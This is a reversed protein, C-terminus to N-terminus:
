HTTGSPLRPLPISDYCVDPDYLVPRGIGGSKCPTEKGETLTGTLEVVQLLPTFGLRQARDQPPPHGPVYGDDMLLYWARLGPCLDQGWHGLELGAAGCGENQYGALQWAPEWIHSPVELGREKAERAGNMKVGAPPLKLPYPGRWM